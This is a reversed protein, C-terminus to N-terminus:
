DRQALGDHQGREASATRRRSPEDSDSDSDFGGGGGGGGGGCDDSNGDDDGDRTHHGSGQPRAPHSPAQVGAIRGCWAAPAARLNAVRRRM